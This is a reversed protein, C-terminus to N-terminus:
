KQGFSGLFSDLNVACATVRRNCGDWDLEHKMQLLSGPISACIEAIDLCVRSVLGLVIFPGIQLVTLAGFNVLKGRVIKM